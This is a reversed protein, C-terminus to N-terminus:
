RPSQKLGYLSKKLKCVLNEKGSVKFGEPLEMYMEENLDGHFFITKVDMNELELNLRAILGLIVQISAIKIM